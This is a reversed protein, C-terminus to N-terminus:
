EAKKTTRKKPAAKKPAVEKEETVKDAKPAPAEVKEILPCRLLNNAGALEEVRRETPEYGKRPYEDGVAYFHKDDQLDVFDRLVRYMM